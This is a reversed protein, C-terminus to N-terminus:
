RKVCAGGAAFRVLPYWADSKSCNLSNHVAIYNVTQRLMLCVLAVVHPDALTQPLREYDRVLRRFHTAAAWRPLDNSMWRWPAGTKIIYRLGNFVERLFHECQGPEKPLLTLYPTVLAWEEDSAGSPYPKCASTM